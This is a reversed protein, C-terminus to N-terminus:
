KSRGILNVDFYRSPSNLRERDTKERIPCHILNLSGGVGVPNVKRRRHGFGIAAVNHTPPGKLSSGRHGNLIPSHPARVAFNM